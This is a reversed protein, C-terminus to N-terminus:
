SAACEPETRELTRTKGRPASHRAALHLHRDVARAPDSDMQLGEIQVSGDALKVLKDIILYAVGEADQNDRKAMFPITARELMVRLHRAVRLATRRDSTNLSKRVERKGGLMPRLAAPITWRFAWSGTDPRLYVYSASRM